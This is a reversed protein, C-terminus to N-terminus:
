GGEVYFPDETISLSHAAAITHQLTAAGKSNCTFGLVEFTM